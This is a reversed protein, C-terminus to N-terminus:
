EEEINGIMLNAMKLDHKTTIKLNFSEGMVLGVKKGKITYVKCADTLISKEESTLSNNIKIFEKLKFSQPTQGQYMESRVPINSIVEGDKSEVITDFAPIVTDTAGYKKCLTINDKIIRQTVFPRVSDHTVVITDKDCDFNKDIYNFVNM